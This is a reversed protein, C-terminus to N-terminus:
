CPLTELYRGTFERDRKYERNEFTRDARNREVLRQYMKREYIKM